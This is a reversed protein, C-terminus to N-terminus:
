RRLMTAGVTERLELATVLHDMLVPLQARTYARVDANGSRVAQNEFTQIDSMHSRIMAGVFAADFNTSSLRGLRQTDRLDTRTETTPITVGLSSALNTAEQYSATHDAVLMAGFAQVDPNSSNTQAMNGLAIEHLSSAAAQQLFRADGRHSSNVNTSNNLANVASNSIVDSSNGATGNPVSIVQAVLSQSMVAAVAVMVSVIQKKMYTKNNSSEPWM